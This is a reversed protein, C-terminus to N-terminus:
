AALQEHVIKGDRTLLCHSIVEDDLLNLVGKDKDWYHELFAYLNNGYVQSADVGVRGPLNPMGLITVGEFEVAENLVVGEVNGGSEVALDVIVSGARMKTIMDRNVILPAPRGFLQATTIVIDSQAIAKALGQQQLKIQEETLAKAYGQETSGTEGLDIKVFKAGLSRVQEEVEPRTDFASVQAGLRKATAIAQLGAVGAGIILVKAPFITGAATTMMPLAKKLKSAAVLISEYGALSAQSSLTDMSQTKSLRPIMNMSIASIKFEALTHVLEGETFPDLSSISICGAKMKAIDASEPSQIGLLIDARELLSARADVIEAGAERYSDNSFLTQGAGSEVLITDTFKKFKTVTEPTAAVRTEFERTERPIAIIM